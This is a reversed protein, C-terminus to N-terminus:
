LVYFNNKCCFRQEYTGTDVGINIACFYKVLLVTYAYVVSNFSLKVIWELHMRPVLYGKIKDKLNLLM